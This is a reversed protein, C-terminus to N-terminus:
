HSEVIIFTTWPIFLKESFQKPNWASDSLMFNFYFKGFILCVILISVFMRDRHFCLLFAKMIENAQYDMIEERMLMLFRLEIIWLAISEGCSNKFAISLLYVFFYVHIFFSFVSVSSFFAFILSLYFTFNIYKWNWWQSYNEM